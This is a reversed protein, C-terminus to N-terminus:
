WTSRVVAGPASLWGNRPFGRYLSFRVGVIVVVVLPYGFRWHLDPMVDLNM